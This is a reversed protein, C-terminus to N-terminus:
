IVIPFEVKRILFKRFQESRVVLKFSGVSIECPVQRTRDPEGEHKGNIATRAKIANSPTSRQSGTGVLHRLKALVGIRIATRM